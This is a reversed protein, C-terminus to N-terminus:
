VAIKTRADHLVGARIPDKMAVLCSEMTGLLVMLGNPEALTKAIIESLTVPKADTAAAKEAVTAAKESPQKAADYGARLGSEKAAKAVEANDINQAVTRCHTLMSWVTPASVKAAKLQERLTGEVKEDKKQKGNGFLADCAKQYETADPIAARLTTIADIAAKSRSKSAEANADAQAQVGMLVPLISASCAAIALTIPSQKQAVPKKAM